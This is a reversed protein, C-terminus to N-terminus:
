FHPNEMAINFLWITIVETNMLWIQLSKQWKQPIIGRSGLWDSDNTSSGKKPGACSVWDMIGRSGVRCTFKSRHGNLVQTSLGHFTGQPNSSKYSNAVWASYNRGPALHLHLNHLVLSQASRRVKM